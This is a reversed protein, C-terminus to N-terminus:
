PNPTSQLAWATGNWREALVKYSPSLDYGTATCASLQFPVVEGPRCWRQDRLVGYRHLGVSLHM